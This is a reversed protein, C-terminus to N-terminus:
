ITKKDSYIHTNEEIFENNILGTKDYISGDPTTNGPALYNLVSGFNKRQIM